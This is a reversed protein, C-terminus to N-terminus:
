GSAIYITEITVFKLIYTCCIALWKIVHAHAM